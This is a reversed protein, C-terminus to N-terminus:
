KWDEDRMRSVLTGADTNGMRGVRNQELWDLDAQTLRRGKRPQSVPRLEVVPAGDRTIVVGEGDLARDILESLRDKAENISHTGM